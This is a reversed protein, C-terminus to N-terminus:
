RACRDLQGAGEKARVCKDILWDYKEAFPAASWAEALMDAFAVESPRDYHRGTIGEGVHGMMPEIVWPPLRLVWRANTQWTKRLNKFLHAEVGHQGLAYLFAKRVERQTAYVRMKQHTLYADRNCADALELLRLAPRGALLAHRTSWKNKTRSAEKAQGDIQREIRVFAITVGRIVESRVDGTRVGLAEGVRCGGFGALLMAAEFWTGWCAHWVDGLETPSWVGDERRQTTSSSPFLYHITMPNSAILEYRVPYDIIQRMLQVSSKAAVRRLGFLWQQIELPRIRDVPMHAWRNSVHCNWTSKYQILSQPALDGQEVMRERDPLYWQKWCVGLTPCPVDAGHLIRLEALRDGAQKRTGRITESCRRYGEATEAWYRLRWVGKNVQAITGWDRRKHKRQAMAHEKAITGM